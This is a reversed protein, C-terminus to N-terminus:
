IRGCNRRFNGASSIEIYSAGEAIGFSGALVVILDNDKFRNESILRCISSRLPQAKTLDLPQYEAHVGYSLSLQRAVRKDYVQAYIVNPGRYAALALISKGTLSDAVIAKTHLRIAAKVAAKALYAALKNSSYPVDISLPNDGEVELAIKAMIRVALEPYKGNATEGSLMLADTHDLCANAVDSVEARTPRPSDIMSHLMQTAVIVPKRKEICAKIIRKQVLPIQETPIEVALDGRAIMIGYTCDLIESLNEVGESNEIKAIIKIKSKKEDLISQVAMVDEKNRVFSHAIFDLDNEAAFAIFGKDKESLAPLTVHVAPINISKRPNIVGDNEVSCYLYEEDKNEVALALLGDDILISSGVPVDAVFDAHSVCIVDGKSKEGPAGKIRVIDGFKVALPEDTSCTRIEPGKTDLLIGINESVARTNRIVELADDHGMHATNLRVVNMGAAYLAKLFPVSCNLSSITAVIKTKRRM